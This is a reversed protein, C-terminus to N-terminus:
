AAEATTATSGYNGDNAAPKNKFAKYIDRAYPALLVFGGVGSLAAASTYGAAIAGTYLTTTLASRVGWNELRRKTVPDDTQTSRYGLYGGLLVGSLPVSVYPSLLSLGYGTAGTIVSGITNKTASRITAWKSQGFITDRSVENKSDDIVNLKGLYASLKDAPEGTIKKAEKLSYTRVSQRLQNLLKKAYRKSLLNIKVASGENLAMELSAILKPVAGEMLESYEEAKRERLDEKKCGEVREKVIDGLWYDLGKNENAVHSLKMFHSRDIESFELHQDNYITEITSGIRPRFLGVFNDFMARMGRREVEVAEHAEISKHTSKILRPMNIKGGEKLAFYYNIMLLKSDLSQDELDEVDLEIKPLASIQATTVKIARTLSRKNVNLGEIEPGIERFRQKDEDTPNDAEVLTKLTAREDKLRAIEEDIEAVEREIEARQAELAEKQSSHLSAPEELFDKLQAYDIGRSAMRRLRSLIARATPQQREQDSM